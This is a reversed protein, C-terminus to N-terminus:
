QCVGVRVTDAACETPTATTPLKWLGDASCTFRICQSSKAQGCKKDKVGTGFCKWACSEFNAAPLSCLDQSAIERQTSRLNRPMEFKTKKTPNQQIDKVALIGEDASLQILKKPGIPQASSILENRRLYAFGEENLLTYVDRQLSVGFVGERKALRWLGMDVAHVLETKRLSVVIDGNKVTLWLVDDDVHASWESDANMKVTFHSKLGQVVIESKEVAKVSFASPVSIPKHLRKRNIEVKGFASKVQFHVPQPRPLLSALTRVSDEKPIPTPMPIPLTTPKEEEATPKEKEALIEMNETFKQFDITEPKKEIPDRPDTMRSMLDQPAAHIPKEGALCQFFNDVNECVFKNCFGKEGSGCRVEEIGFQVPRQCPECQVPPCACNDALAPTSFVLVFFLFKVRLVM